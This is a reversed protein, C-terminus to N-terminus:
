IAGLRLRYKVANKQEVEEISRVECWLGSYNSKISAINNPTPEEPILEDLIILDGVSMTYNQEKQELKKWEQYKKFKDDFPILITVTSGVGVTTGEVSQLTERKYDIDQLFTKYWVDVGTVSDNRKLKNLLTIQTNM